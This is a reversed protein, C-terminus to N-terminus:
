IFLTSTISHSCTAASLVALTILKSVGRVIHGVEKAVDDWAKAKKNRDRYIFLSADYSIRHGAVAAIIRERVM